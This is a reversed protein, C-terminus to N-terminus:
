WIRNRQWGGIASNCVYGTCLDPAPAGAECHCTAPFQFSCQNYLVHCASMCMQHVTVFLGTVASHKYLLFSAARSAFSRTASGTCLTQGGDALRHGSKQLPMVDVKYQDQHMRHLHASMSCVGPHLRCGVPASTSCRAASTSCCSLAIAFHPRRGSGLGATCARAMKPLQAGKPYPWKHM